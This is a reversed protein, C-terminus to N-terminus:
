GNRQGHKIGLTTGVFLTIISIPLEFMWTPSYYFQELVLSMAIADLLVVIVLVFFAHAYPRPIQEKALFYFVVISILSFPLYKFLFFHFSGWNQFSSMGFSYFILTSVAVQSVFFVASFLLVVILKM